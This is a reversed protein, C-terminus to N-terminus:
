RLFDYYLTEGKLIKRIQVIEGYTLPCCNFSGDQMKKEFIADIVEEYNPNEVKKKKILYNIMTIIADSVGVVAGEKTHFPQKKVYESLLETLEEPFHHEEAIKGINEESNEGYIKGIKHYYGGAKALDTNYQMEKAIRDCLYATHIANMYSSNTKKKLEKMLEYEQDNISQYVERYRHMELKSFVKLVFIIFLLNMFLNFGPIIFSEFTIEEALYFIVVGSLIVVFFMCSIMLPIGYQYREDLQAFLVITAIGSMMYLFFIGYSVGAMMVTMMLLIIGSVLGILPTSFVSLALFVAPFFWGTAPINPLFSISVLCITFIIFFRAARGKGYMKKESLLLFIVVLIGMSVLVLNRIMESMSDRYYYTTFCSAFCTLLLLVVSVMYIPQNTYKERVKSM